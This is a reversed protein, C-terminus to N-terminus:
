SIMAQVTVAMAPVTMVPATVAAPAMVPATVAEEAEAPASEMEAHVTQPFLSTAPLEEAMVAHPVATGVALAASVAIIIGRKKLEEMKM